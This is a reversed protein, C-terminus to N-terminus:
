LTHKEAHYSSRVLPGSEVRLFGKGLAVDRLEDFIKPQIYSHVPMHMLTPQLYQGMTLVKVKADLLDDMTELIEDMTEGLGLMIGSKATVGSASVQKLLDLSIAYQAKSRIKPTLREVTELNHSIVEPKTDIIKQIVEPRGQFDPILVEIAIDQNEERVKEIVAVWLASGMDELDDRDVSTIVCHKLGMKKVSQAVRHPEDWDVPM